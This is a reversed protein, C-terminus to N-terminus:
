QRRSQKTQRLMTVFNCMDICILTERGITAFNDAMTKLVSIVYFACLNTRTRANSLAVLVM